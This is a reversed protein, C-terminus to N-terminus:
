GAAIAEKAQRRAYLFLGLNILALAIMSALGTIGVTLDSGSRVLLFSLGGTANLTGHIIAAASVSKGRLRVYDFITVPRSTFTVSSDRRRSARSRRLMLPSLVRRSERVQLVRQPAMM